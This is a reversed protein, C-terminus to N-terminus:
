KGGHGIHFGYRVYLRLLTDLLYGRSFIIILKSCPSSIFLHKEAVLEVTWYSQRLLHYPWDMHHDSKGQSFDFTFEDIFFARVLFLVLPM